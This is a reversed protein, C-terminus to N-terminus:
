RLVISDSSIQGHRNILFVTVHGKGPEPWVPINLEYQGASHYVQKALIHRGYAVQSFLMLTTKNPSFLLDGLDSITM